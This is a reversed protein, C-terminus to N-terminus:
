DRILSFTLYRTGARMEGLNNYVVGASTLGVGRFM